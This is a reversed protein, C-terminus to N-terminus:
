HTASASSANTTADPTVILRVDCDDDRAAFCLNSITGASRPQEDVDAPCVWNGRVDHLAVAFYRGAPLHGSSTGSATKAIDFGDNSGGPTFQM